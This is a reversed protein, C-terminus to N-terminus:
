ESVWSQVQHVHYPRLVSIHHPWAKEEGPIEGSNTWIQWKSCTDGSGNLIVKIGRFRVFDPTTHRLFYQNSIPSCKLPNFSEFPSMPFMYHEKDALIEKFSQLLRMELKNGFIRIRPPLDSILSYTSLTHSLSLQIYRDKDPPCQHRVSLPLLCPASVVRGPRGECANEPIRTVVVVATLM